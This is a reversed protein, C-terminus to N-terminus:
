VYTTPQTLYYWLNSILCKVLFTLFFVFITIKQMFPKCIQISKRVNALKRCGVSKFHHLRFNTLLYNKMLLNQKSMPQLGISKLTGNTTCIEMKKAFQAFFSFLGSFRLVQFFSPWKQIEWGWILTYYYSFM